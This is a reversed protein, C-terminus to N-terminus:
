AAGVRHLKPSSRRLRRRSRLASISQITLGWGVRTSSTVSADLDAIVNHFRNGEEGKSGVIFPNTGVVRIPEGVRSPDGASTEVSEGLMFAVAAQEYDLRAIPPVLPNRTIFFIQDVRELDIDEASSELQDRHITARANRGYRPEDFHVTDNDGVAVNELIASEDTAASHLEPQESTDLDITKVYLGGSGSGSVTESLLLACVDDQIMEVGEPDNLWLGHSTLTSKGTGSLALFLQGM